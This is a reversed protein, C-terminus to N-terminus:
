NTKARAKSVLRDIVEQSRFTSLCVTKAGISHRKGQIIGVLWRQGSTDEHFCPGGSDGEEANSEKERHFYAEVHQEDSSPNEKYEVVRIGTVMNDGFHRILSPDTGNVVTSGFGVVLVRDDVASERTPFKHVIPADIEGSLRIVALDAHISQISGRSDIEMRFEDPLFVSGPLEPYEISVSQISGTPSLKTKLLYQKVLARTACNSKDLVKNRAAMRSQACMCHAATLVLDREILVGSCSGASGPGGGFGHAADSEVIVVTSYLNNYDPKGHSVALQIEAPFIRRDLDIEIEDGM